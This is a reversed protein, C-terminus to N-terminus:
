TYTLRTPQYSGSDAFCRLRLLNSDACYPLVSIILVVATATTTNITHTRITALTPTIPSKGGVLPLLTGWLAWCAAGGPAPAIPWYQKNHPHSRVTVEGFAGDFVALHMFVWCCAVDSYDGWEPNTGTGEVPFFLLVIWMWNQWIQEREHHSEALEMLKVDIDLVQRRLERIAGKLQNEVSLSGTEDFWEGANGKAVEMLKDVKALLVGRTRELLDKYEHDIEVVLKESAAFGEEIGGKEEFSDECEIDSRQVSMMRQSRGKPKKEKATRRPASRGREKSKSRRPPAEEEEESSMLETDESEESDESEEESDDEEEEGHCEWHLLMHRLDLLEHFSRLAAAIGRDGGLLRAYRFSRGTCARGRSGGERAGM